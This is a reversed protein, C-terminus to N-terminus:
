VALRTAWWSINSVLPAILEMIVETLFHTIMCSCYCTHVFHAISSINRKTMTTMPEM